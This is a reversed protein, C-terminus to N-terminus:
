SETWCQPFRRHKNPDRFIRKVCCDYTNVTYVHISECEKKCRLFLSCSFTPFLCPSQMPYSSSVLWTNLRLFCLRSSLHQAIRARSPTPTWPMFSHHMSTTLVPEWLLSIWFCGRLLFLMLLFGVRLLLRLGKNPISAQRSTTCSSRGLHLTEGLVVTLEALDWM